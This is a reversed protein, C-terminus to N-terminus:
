DDVSMKLGAGSRLAILDTTRINKSVIEWEAYSTGLYAFLREVDADDIGHRRMMALLAVHEHSM